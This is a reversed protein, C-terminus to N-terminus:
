SAARSGSYNTWAKGMNACVLEYLSDFDVPSARGTDAFAFVLKRLAEQREPDAARDRSPERAEVKAWAAEYVRDIIELDLPDFARRDFSSM